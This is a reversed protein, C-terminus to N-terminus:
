EAGGDLPGTGGDEPSVISGVEIPVDDRPEFTVTALHANGPLRLDLVSPQARNPAEVLQQSVSGANVSQSTFLVLVQVPGDSLPVRYQRRGIPQGAPCEFSRNQASMTLQRTLGNAAVTYVLCFPPQGQTPVLAFTSGGTRELAVRGASSLDSRHCGWVTLVMLLWIAGRMGPTMGRAYASPYSAASTV